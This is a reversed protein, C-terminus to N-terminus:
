RRRRRRRRSRRPAGHRQAAPVGGDLRLYSVSPMAGKLLDSEVLDLM